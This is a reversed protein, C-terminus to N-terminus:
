LKKQCNVVATEYEEIPREHDTLSNNWVVILGEAIPKVDDDTEASAKRIAERFVDQVDKRAQVCAKGSEIRQLILETKEAAITEDISIQRKRDDIKTDLARIQTQLTMQQAADSTSDLNKELSKRSVELTDLNAQMREINDRIDSVSSINNCSIAVSSGKCYEEVRSQATRCESKLSAYPISVCGKQTAVAQFDSLTGALAMASTCLLLLAMVYSLNAQFRIPNM